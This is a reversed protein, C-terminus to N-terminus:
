WHRHKPPLHFCDATSHMMHTTSTRLSVWSNLHMDEGGKVPGSALAAQLHTTRDARAVTSSTGAAAEDEKPRAARQLTCLASLSKWLIARRVPSMSGTCILETMNSSSISTIFSDEHPRNKKSRFRQCVIHPSCCGSGSRHQKIQPLKQSM